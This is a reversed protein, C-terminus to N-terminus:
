GASKGPALFPRKFSALLERRYKWPLLALRGRVHYVLVSFAYIARRVKGRALLALVEKITVAGYHERWYNKGRRLAAELASNGKVFAEQSQMVRHTARLMVVGKRSANAPHRRYQAVVNRHHASPFERSFRLLLEYDEAPEFSRKFGGANQFASRRFMVAITNAVHNIKLLEQYHESQLMPWRPSSRFAGDATIHDIDGVVFGAEPHRAFCRLHSEVAVPTLRDDADLFILYDGRSARFGANRAESIGRNEQRVCRVGAYRAAIQSTDDPSGDDVVVPEVAAYSQGLVSELTEPLFRAQKYCPIVVSM